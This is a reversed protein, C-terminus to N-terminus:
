PEFACASTGGHCFEIYTCHMFLESFSKRGDSILKVRLFADHNHSMEPSSSSGPHLDSSSLLTILFMIRLSWKRHIHLYMKSKGPNM